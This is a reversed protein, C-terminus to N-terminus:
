DWSYHKGRMSMWTDIGYQRLCNHNHELFSHRQKLPVLLECATADSCEWCGRLGNNLVCKRIDCSAEITKSNCTECALEKIGQLVRLFVPYDGFEPSSSAKYAAYKDFNLKKLQDDLQTALEVLQPKSRNCDTCYLGCCATYDKAM